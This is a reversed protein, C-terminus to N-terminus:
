DDFTEFLYALLDALDQDHCDVAPMDGSGYTVINAIQVDSHEPVADILSPGIDGSGDAGHCSACSDTYVSSGAAADGDLHLGSIGTDLETDHSHGDHSHDDEGCGLLMTLLLASM